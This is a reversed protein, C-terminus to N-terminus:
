KGAFDATVVIADHLGRFTGWVAGIGIRTFGPRLLNARHVPSGLWDAVMVQPEARTGIGWALDEAVVPGAVRFSIMRGRFDDHTLSGHALMERAHARAARQLASDLHLPRLGRKARAENIARVIARESATQRASGAGAAPALVLAILAFALLRLSPRM